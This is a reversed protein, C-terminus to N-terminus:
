YPLYVAIGEPLWTKIQRIADVAMRAYSSEVWWAEQPLASWGAILVLILVIVVGRLIGFVFGLGRDASGLGTVDLLASLTKNLLGLLLLSAIFILFYALGETLVAQDIYRSLTPILSPGWWVAALFSLIYALLSFIEKLLGRMLGLLGSALLVGLIVYDFTAM